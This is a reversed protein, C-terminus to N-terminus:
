NDLKEFGREEVFEKFERAFRTPPVLLDTVCIDTGQLYIPNDDADCELDTETIPKGIQGCKQCRYQREGHDLQGTDVLEGGCPSIRHGKAYRFTHFLRM